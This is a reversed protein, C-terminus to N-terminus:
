TNPESINILVPVECEIKATLLEFAKTKLGIERLSIKREEIRKKEEDALEEQKKISPMGRVIVRHSSIFYKDLIEKWFALDENYLQNLISIRNM